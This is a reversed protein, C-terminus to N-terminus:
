INSSVKEYHYNGMRATARFLRQKSKAVKQLTGAHENNFRADDEFMNKNFIKENKLFLLTRKLESEIYTWLIDLTATLEKGPYM